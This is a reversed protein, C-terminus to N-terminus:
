PTSSESALPSDSLASLADSLADSLSLM